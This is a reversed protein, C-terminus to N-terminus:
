QKPQEQGAGKNYATYLILAMLVVALVAIFSEDFTKELLNQGSILFLLLLAFIVAILTFDKEHKGKVFSFVFGIFFFAMFFLAASPLIAKLFQAVGTDNAAFFAIIMAILLNAPKHKIFGGVQLTGFSVALAFLFPLLFDELFPAEIFPM